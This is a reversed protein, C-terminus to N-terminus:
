APAEPAPKLAELGQRAAAATASDTGSAVNVTPFAFKIGNEDFAKKIMANAKRRIVFQEGPRTKMKVRVEVAFDGFQEVGQMKLPELIHPAFAPDEALTQGIKKIIKRAKEIDSDYTIGISFKDIVWDRSMNQIAHLEGFPVTYVSGRHHRLKVARLGIAEVTGKYSGSIIYEGVRFADDLIFFVGTLIDRVLTQAGFGIAVGVVGAGALLPGINVGLGSLILMVTMVVLIALVFKRALPLLTQMRQSPQVIQGNIERPALRRDIAIKIFQWGIVALLVAAVLDLSSSLVAQRLRVGAEGFLNLGWLEAMAALLFLVLLARAIRHLASAYEPRKDDKADQAASRGSSFLEDIARRMWGDLLPFAFVIGVSTVAAWVTSPGQGLVSLAWLLYVVLVYLIAFYHWTAAFLSRLTAAGRSDADGSARIADAVLTRLRVIMALLLVLLLSGTILSIVLQAKLPVGTHILLGATLWAFVGAGTIWLFWRHAFRAAADGIPLLRLGPVRPALVFRALVAAAVVIAAGTAYTVHFTRDAGRPEFLLVALGLTVLCFAAFPLLELLLRTSAMGLRAAFGSGEPVAVLADRGLVRRRVLWQAFLGAAILGILVATQRRFGPYGRGGAIKDMSTAVSGSVMPWGEKVVQARERLLDGVGELGLRTSMLLDDLGGSRKGPVRAEADRSLQRALLQRVQADTLRALLADVEDPALADPIEIAAAPPQASKADKTGQADAVGSALAAAWFLIAAIRRCSARVHM